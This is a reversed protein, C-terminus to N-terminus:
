GSETGLFNTAVPDVENPLLMGMTLVKQLHELESQLTHHPPLEQPWPSRKQARAVTQGVTNPLVDIVFPFVRAWQGPTKIGRVLREWTKAAKRAMRANDLREELWPMITDRLPWEDEPHVPLCPTSDFGFLECGSSGVDHTIIAYGSRLPVYLFVVSALGFANANALGQPPQRRAYKEANDSHEAVWTPVLAHLPRDGLDVPFRPASELRAILRLGAAMIRFQEQSSFGM